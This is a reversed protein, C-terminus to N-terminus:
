DSVALVILLFWGRGCDVWSATATGAFAELVSCIGFLPRHGNMLRLRLQCLCAHDAQPVQVGPGAALRLPLIM